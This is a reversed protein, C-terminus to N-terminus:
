RANPPNPTMGPPVAGSGGPGIVPTPVPPTPDNPIPAPPNNPLPQNIEQRNPIYAANDNPRFQVDSQRVTMVQTNPAQPGAAPEIGLEWTGWDNVSDVFTTASKDDSSATDACAVAGVLMLCLATIAGFSSKFKYERYSMTLYQLEVTNYTFCSKHWCEFRAQLILLMRKSTINAPYQQFVIDAFHICHTLNKM